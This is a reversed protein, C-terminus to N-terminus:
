RVGGLFLWALGEKGPQLGAAHDARLLAAVRDVIRPTERSYQWWTAPVQSLLAALYGAEAEPLWVPQGPHRRGLRDEVGRLRGAWEEVPLRGLVATEFQVRPDDSEVLLTSPDLREAHFMYGLSWCHAAVLARGPVPDRDLAASWADALLTKDSTFAAHIAAVAPALVDDRTLWDVQELWDVVQDVPGIYGQELSGAVVLANATPQTSPRRTLLEKAVEFYWEDASPAFSARLRHVGQLNHVGFEYHGAPATVLASVGEYFTVRAGQGAVVGWDPTDVVVEAFEADSEDAVLQPLWSPLAQGVEDTSDVPSFTLSTRSRGHPRLEGTVPVLHLLAFARPLAPDVRRVEPGFVPTEGAVRVFGRAKLLLCPGVGSDPSIVVIGELDSAWTWGSWGDALTLGVGVTPYAHADSDTNDLTVTTHWREVDAEHRLTTTLPGETVSVTADDADEILAEPEALPLAFDVQVVTVRDRTVTLTRANQSLAFSFPGTM